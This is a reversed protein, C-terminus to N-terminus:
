RVKTMSLSFGTDRLLEAADALAADREKVAHALRDRDKKADKIKGKKTIAIDGAKFSEIGDFDSDDDKSNERRQLLMCLAMAAAARSLRPDDRIVNPKLKPLLQELAAACFPLAGRAAEEDLETLLRLQGLITYQTM